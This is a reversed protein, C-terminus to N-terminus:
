GRRSFVVGLLSYSSDPRWRSVYAGRADARGVSVLSGDSSRRSTWAYMNELFRGGNNQFQIIFDYIVEVPLQRILQTIKLSELIEAAKQWDSSLIPQITGKKANFEDIAEQYESPIGGAFVENEIYKIVHETQALYNKSTSDPIVDKSVLAWGARPKEDTFFSENQYWNTDYLLKGKNGKKFDDEVIKMMKEMTLPHRDHLSDVRLVLVQKLEKARELDERSFPIAPVQESRIPGFATEVANPGFVNESGLIDQANEITVENQVQSERKATPRYIEWAPNGDRTIGKYVRFKSDPFKAIEGPTYTQGDKEYPRLLVEVRRGKDIVTIVDIIPEETVVKRYEVRPSLLGVKLPTMIKFEPLEEDPTTTKSVDIGYYRFFEKVLQRDDASYAAKSLFQTNLRDIIFQELSQSRGLTTYERLWGTITGIDIVLDRVFQADGKAKLVTEKHSFSKNLENLTDALRWLFGGAPITKISGGEEVQKKRLLKRVKITQKSEAGDRKVTGVKDEYEYEPALETHAARIRGNEDMLAALMMEYIEPSTETQEPYDVDVKAFKRLVEPPIKERSYRESALNVMACYLFRQAVTVEENTVPMRIKKGPTWTAIRALRETQEAKSQLNFEDDAVVRGLHTPTEQRTSEKGTVAEGIEKYEYYTEGTASIKPKAILDQFRVDKGPTENNIMGTLTLSAQEVLRTKGTGSEGSLLVPKGSLAAMEMEELLARRSPAWIFNHDRLQHSYEQLTRYQVLGALEPNKSVLDRLEEKRKTLEKQTTEFLLIDVEDIGAGRKTFMNRASADHASEADKIQRDLAQYKEYDGNISNIERLHREYGQRFAAQTEPDSFLKKLIGVQLRVRALQSNFKKRGSIYPKVAQFVAWASEAKQEPSLFSLDMNSPEVDALESRTGVQDIIFEVPDNRLKEIAEHINGPETPKEM